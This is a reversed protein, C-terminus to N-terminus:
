SRRAATYRALEAALPAMGGGLRAAARVATAEARALAAAAGSRGLVGPYSDPAGKASPTFDLLDDAIQFALGLARAYRELAAAVPPPAGAAHAGALAAAEFLRGTKLEHVRTLAGLAPRGLEREAAQGGIMGPAGAARALVLAIRLSREAPLGRVPRALIEFALALLADGALVATAEDFQRHVSPRGRRLPSDDLCPLDDHVLSFGHVLEVATAAPLAGGGTGGAAEYALFTLAPRLRKGGPFMAYTMAAALAPSASAREAPLVRALARDVRRASRALFRALRPSLAPDHAAPRPTVLTPAPV